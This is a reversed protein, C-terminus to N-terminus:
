KRPAQLGSEASFCVDFHFTKVEAKSGFRINCALANRHCSNSEKTAYATDLFGHYNGKLAIAAAWPRALVRRDRTAPDSAQGGQCPLTRHFILCDTPDCGNDNAP